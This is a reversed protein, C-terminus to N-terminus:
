DLGLATVEWGAAELRRVAAAVDPRGAGDPEIWPSWSLEAALTLVGGDNVLNIELPATEAQGPVPGAAWARGTTADHEVPLRLVGNGYGAVLEDGVPAWGAPLRIRAANVLLQTWGPVTEPACQRGGLAEAAWALVATEDTAAGETVRTDKWFPEAAVGRRRLQHFSAPGGPVPEGITDDFCAVALNLVLPEAFDGTLAFLGRVALGALEAQGTVEQPPVLEASLSGRGRSRITLESVDSRM